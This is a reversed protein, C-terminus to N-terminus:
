DSCNGSEVYALYAHAAEYDEGTLDDLVERMRDEQAPTPRPWAETSGHNALSPSSRKHTHATDGQSSRLADCAQSLGELRGQALFRKTNPALFREPSPALREPEADVESDAEDRLAELRALSEAREQKLALEASELTVGLVEREQCGDECEIHSCSQSDPKRVRGSRTCVYFIPFSKDRVDAHDSM